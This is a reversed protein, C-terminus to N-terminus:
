GKIEKRASVVRRLKDLGYRLRSKVTAISSGLMEAIEKASLEDLVSLRVVEAQEDPIRALLDEARKLEQKAIAQQSASIDRNPMLEPNVDYISTVNLRRRRGRDTCLNSTMRYLYATVCYVANLESRQVFAKVFVEQAVDEADQLDGLRRFAYRVLRDQYMVILPEFEAATQPWPATWEGKESTEGFESGTEETLRLMEM